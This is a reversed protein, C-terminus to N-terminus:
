VSSFDMNHFHVNQLGKTVRMSNWVQIVKNRQHFLSIKFFELCCGENKEYCQKTTTTGRFLSICVPKSHYSLLYIIVSSSMKPCVIGKVLFSPKDLCVDVTPHIGLIVLCSTVVDVSILWFCSLLVSCHFFGAPMTSPTITSWEIPYDALNIM